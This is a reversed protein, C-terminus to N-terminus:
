DFELAFPCDGNKLWDSLPPKVTCFKDPGKNNVGTGSDDGDAVSCVIFSDPRNQVM